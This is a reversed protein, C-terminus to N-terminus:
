KIYNLKKARENYILTDEEGQKLVGRLYSGTKSTLDNMIAEQCKIHKSFRRASTNALIRDKREHTCYVQNTDSLLQDVM